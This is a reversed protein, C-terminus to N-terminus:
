FLPILHHPTVSSFFIFETVFIGLVRWLFLFIKTPFFPGPSCCAYFCFPLTQSNNSNLTMLTSHIKPDLHFHLQFFIDSAVVLLSEKTNFSNYPKRPSETTFYIRRSICSVHTQYRIWSSGVYWPTVLGMRWM